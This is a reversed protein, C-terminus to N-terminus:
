VENSREGFIRQGSRLETRNEFELIGGLVRLVPVLQPDGPFRPAQLSTRSKASIWKARRLDTPSARKPVGHHRLKQRFDIQLPARPITGIDRNRLSEEPLPPIQESWRRQDDDRLAHIASQLLRSELAEGNFNSMQHLM